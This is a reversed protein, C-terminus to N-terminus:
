LELTSYALVMKMPIWMLSHTLDEALKENHATTSNTANRIFTGNLDLATSLAATLNTANAM